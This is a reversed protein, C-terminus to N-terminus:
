HNQFYLKMMNRHIDQISSRYRQLDSHLRGAAEYTDLPITLRNSPNFKVVQYQWGTTYSFGVKYYLTAGREASTIAWYNRQDQANLDLQYYANFFQEFGYSDRGGFGFYYGTFGLGGVISGAEDDALKRFGQMKDSLAGKSAIALVDEDMAQTQIASPTQALAIATIASILGLKLINKM